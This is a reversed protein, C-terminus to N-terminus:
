FRRHVPPNTIHIKIRPLVFGNNRAIIQDTANVFSDNNFDYLTDIDVDGMFNRVQIEDTANTIFAVPSDFVFTDGIINGFFFTDSAVLGTNTNNGGAADNGEVIVQLWESSFPTTPGFSRSATRAMGPVLSGFCYNSGTGDGFQQANTRWRLPRFRHCHVEM